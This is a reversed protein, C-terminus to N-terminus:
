FYYYTESIKNREKEESPLEDNRKRLWLDLLFISSMLMKINKFHSHSLCLKKKVIFIIILYYVTTGTKSNHNQNNLLLVSLSSFYFCLSFIYDDIVSLFLTKFIKM